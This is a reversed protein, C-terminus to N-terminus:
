RAKGESRRYGVQFVRRGGCQVASTRGFRVSSWAGRGVKSRREAAMTSEYKEGLAWTKALDDTDKWVGVALGAAFAAGLATTESM